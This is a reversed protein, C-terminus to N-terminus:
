RSIGQRSSGFIKRSVTSVFPTTSTSTMVADRNPHTIARAWTFWCNPSRSSPVVLFGRIRRIIM